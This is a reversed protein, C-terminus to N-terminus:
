RKIHQYWDFNAPPALLIFTYSWYYFYGGGIGLNFGVGRTNMGPYSSKGYIWDGYFEGSIPKFGRLGPLMFNIGTSFGALQDPTVGDNTVSYGQGLSEGPEEGRQRPKAFM